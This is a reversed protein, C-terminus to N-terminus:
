CMDSSMSLAQIKRNRVMYKELRRTEEQSKTWRDPDFKMPDPFAEPDRHLMWESVGIVTGEPVFYGEFEAGGAPVVRPVRFPVGFSIRLTEKVVGTLYPLPELEVFPLKTDKNYHPFRQTLEATLKSYVQQDYLIWFTAVTLANGTTDTGAFLVSYAEDKIQMTEPVIYGAPKDEPTLLNSFITEREANRDFDSAQGKEGKRMKNKVNEIQRILELQM